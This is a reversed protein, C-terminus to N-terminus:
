PVQRVQILRAKNVDGPQEQLLELLEALTYVMVNASPQFEPRTLDAAATAADKGAPHLYASDPTARFVHYFFYRRAAAGGPQFQVVYVDGVRPKAVQARLRGVASDVVVAAPTDGLGQQEAPTAKNCGVALLLILVSPLFLTKLM